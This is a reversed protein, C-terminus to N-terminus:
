GFSCDGIIALDLAIKAAQTFTSVSFDPKFDKSNWIKGRSIWISKFNINKSLEIDALSDGIVIGDGLNVKLRNALAEAIRKNPKRINITESVEWGGVLKDLEVNKIVDHQFPPGNTIIGLTYGYNKLDILSNKIDNELKFCHPYIKQYHELIEENSLQGKLKMSINEAFIKRNKFGDNDFEILNKILKLDLDNDSVFIESWRMFAVERDLLTNDLDLILLTM